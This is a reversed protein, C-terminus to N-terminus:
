PSRRCRYRPTSCGPSCTSGPSPAFRRTWPAHSPVHRADSAPEAVRRRLALAPAARPRHHDRRRARAARRHRAQVAHGGRGADPCTCSVALEERAPILMAMAGVVAPDAGALEDPPVPDSGLVVEYPERRSGLVLGSVVGPRVDIDIVAGDRAYAKARTYRGPDSLEAALARLMTAVLHGPAHGLTARGADSRRWGRRRRVLRPARARAARDDVAAWGTRATASWSIPSRRSTTSSSPSASRSPARACWSTCSAGDPGTRHALGPRHGPERGGPEVLPRLPHGPQGGHPQARHRRGEAVRAAAATRCRGPLRRRGPRPRGEVDVRPPVAGGM